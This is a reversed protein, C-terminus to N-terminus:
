VLSLLVIGYLMIIRHLLQNIYRQHHYQISIQYLKKYILKFSIFSLFLIENRSSFNGRNVSTHSNIKERLYVYFRSPSIYYLICIQNSHTSDLIEMPIDIFLFIIFIDNKRFKCKYVLKDNM